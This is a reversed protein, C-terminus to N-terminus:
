GSIEDGSFTPFGLHRLRSEAFDDMAPRGKTGTRGRPSTHMRFRGGRRFFQFFLFHELPPHKNTRELRVLGLALVASGPLHPHPQPQHGQRQKKKQDKM